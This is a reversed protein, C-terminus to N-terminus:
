ETARVIKAPPRAPEFHQKLFKSGSRLDGGCEKFRPLIKCDVSPKVRVRRLEPPKASGLPLGQVVNFCDFFRLRSGSSWM